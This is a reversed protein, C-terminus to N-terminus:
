EPSCGSETTTDAHNEEGSSRRPPAVHLYGNHPRSQLRKPLLGLKAYSSLFPSQLIIRAATLPLGLPNQKAIAFFRLRESLSADFLTPLPVLDYDLNHCWLAAQPVNLFEKVGNTMQKIVRSDDIDLFKGLTELSMGSAYSVLVSIDHQWWKPAPAHKPKSVNAVEYPEPVCGVKMRFWHEVPEPWKRPAIFCEDGFLWEKWLPTRNIWEALEKNFDSTSSVYGNRAWSKRLKGSTYILQGLSKPHFRVEAIESKAHLGVHFIHAYQVPNKADVQHKVSTCCGTPLIRKLKRKPKRPM